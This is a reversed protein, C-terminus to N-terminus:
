EGVFGSIELLENDSVGSHDLGPYMNDLEEHTYVHFTAARKEDSMVNWREVLASEVEAVIQPLAHPGRIEGYEVGFDHSTELAVFGDVILRCNWESCAETVKWEVRANHGYLDVSREIKSYSPKSM